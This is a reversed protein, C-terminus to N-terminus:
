KQQCTKEETNQNEKCFGDEKLRFSLYNCIIKSRRASSSPSLGLSSSKSTAKYSEDVSQEQNHFFNSDVKKNQTDGFERLVVSESLSSNNEDIADVM